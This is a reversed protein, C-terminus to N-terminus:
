QHLQRTITSAIYLIVSATAQNDCYNVVGLEVITITFCSTRYIFMMAICVGVYVTAVINFLQTYM